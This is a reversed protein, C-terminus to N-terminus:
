AKAFYNRRINPFLHCGRAGGKKADLFIGPLDEVSDYEVFCACAVRMRFTNLATLDQNRALKYM